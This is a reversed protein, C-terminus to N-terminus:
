LRGHGRYTSKRFPNGAETLAKGSLTELKKAFVEIRRSLDLTDAMGEHMQELVTKQGEFLPEQPLYGLQVDKACIVDGEDPREDGLILRFLTTKGSGNPGILGFKQRSEFQLSLQEFVIEPGFSKHVNQFKIVSM